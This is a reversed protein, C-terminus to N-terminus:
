FPVENDGAFPNDDGDPLEVPGGQEGKDRKSHIRVNSVIIEIKYRNEGEKNQWKNQRLQGDISLLDGKHAYGALFKARSGFATCDFFNTIEPKDKGGYVNNAISFGAIEMGSQTYKLEIDKTLRGDIVIINRDNM